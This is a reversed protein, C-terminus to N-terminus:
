EADISRLEEECKAIIADAFIGHKQRQILADIGFKFNEELRSKIVNREEAMKIM